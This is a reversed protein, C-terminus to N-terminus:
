RREGTTKIYSDSGNGCIGKISGYRASNSPNVAGSEYGVAKIARGTYSWFSDEQRLDLDQAQGQDEPTFTEQAMGEQIEPVTETQFEYVKNFSNPATEVGYKQTIISEGILTIGGIFFAICVITTILFTELKM